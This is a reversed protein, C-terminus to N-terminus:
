WQDPDRYRTNGKNKNERTKINTEENREEGGQQERLKKEKQQTARSDEWHGDQRFYHLLTVKAFSILIVEQRPLFHLLSHEQM